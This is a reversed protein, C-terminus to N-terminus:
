GSSPLPGASPSLARAPPPVRRQMLMERTYPTSRGSLALSLRTVWGHTPSPPAGATGLSLWLLTILILLKPMHSHPVTTRKLAWASAASGLALGIVSESVSHAGVLVRSLAVVVALAYAGALAVRQARPTTAVAAAALVPMVAAAFMAHGSIGTFDLAASGIGWGLFAVKTVTTIFAAVAIAGTWALVVARAGLRWRFWALVLALPPLLLQAEGLRTIFRWALSLHLEFPM